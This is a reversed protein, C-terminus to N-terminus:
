NRDAAKTLHLRYEAELLHSLHGKSQWASRVIRSEVSTATAEWLIVQKRGSKRALIAVTRIIAISTATLQVKWLSFANMRMSLSSGIVLTFSEVKRSLFTLKISHTASLAIKWILGEWEELLPPPSSSAARILLRISLIKTESWSRWARYRIRTM